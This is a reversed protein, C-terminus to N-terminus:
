QRAEPTCHPSPCAHCTGLALFQQAPFQQALFAFPTIREPTRSAGTINGIWITGARECSSQPYSVLLSAAISWIDQM